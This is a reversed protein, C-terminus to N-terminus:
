HHAIAKLAVVGSSVIVVASAYLLSRLQSASGIRAGQYAVVAILAVLAIEAVRVGTSGDIALLPVVAVLTAFAGGMLQAVVLSATEAGPKGHSLRSSVQFAVLHAAILGVSLVVVYLAVEAHDVPVAETPAVGNIALLSLSIYLAMTVGERVRDRAVADDVEVGGMRHLITHPPMPASTPAPDGESGADALRHAPTPDDTM